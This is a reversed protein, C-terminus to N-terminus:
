GDSEQPTRRFYDEWRELPEFGLIRKAKETPYKGHSLYSNLNFAQFHDPVSALELALRCARELDEWVISFSSFDRGSVPETPRPSIGRLLFCVTQIGYARAYIRCIEGGLFKTIGYYGTGPVGPVDDLDFEHGYWERVQEPGTQVVKKIGLEAAAKMIHYAGVTNVAFSEVPDPRVVTFNAIADVGHAAELVQEYFTVDVNLVPRGDPYPKIDALRLEYDRELGPIIHPAIRGSAGLFLVKKM